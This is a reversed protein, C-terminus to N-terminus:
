DGPDPLEKIIKRIKKFDHPFSPLVFTVGTLEVTIAGKADLPRVGVMMALDGIMLPSGTRAATTPSARARSALSLMSKLHKRASTIDGRKNAALARWKHLAFRLPAGRADRLAEDLTAAASYADDHLTLAAVAGAFPHLPREVFRRSRQLARHALSPNGSAVALAGLSFASAGAYRAGVATEPDFGDLLRKLGSMAARTAKQSPARGGTAARLWRGVLQLYDRRLGLETPLKSLKAARELGTNLLGENALRLGLGVEQEALVLAVRPRESTRLGDLANVLVTVAARPSETALASGARALAALSSAAHQTKLVRRAKALAALAKAEATADSRAKAAAAERVAMFLNLIDAHLAGRAGGRRLRALLSGLRKWLAEVAETVGGLNGVLADLRTRVALTLELPEWFGDARDKRAALLAVARADRRSQMWYLVARKAVGRAVAAPEAMVERALADGKHSDGLRVYREAQDLLAAASLKPSKKDFSRTIRRDSAEADLRKLAGAVAPIRQALGRHLAEVGESRRALAVEYVNLAYAPRGGLQLAEQFAKSAEILRGEQKLYLGRLNLLRHDKPAASLAAKAVTPFWSRGVITFRALSDRVQASTTKAKKGKARSVLGGIRKRLDRDHDYVWGLRHLLSAARTALAPVNKPRDKRSMLIELATAAVVLDAIDTTTDIAFEQEDLLFRDLASEAFQALSKTSRRLLEPSFRAALPLSVSPTTPPAKQALSPAVSTLLVGFLATLALARM